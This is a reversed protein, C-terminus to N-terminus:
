PKQADSSGLTFPDKLKLSRLFLFSNFEGFKFFKSLDRKALALVGDAEVFSMFKKEFSRYKNSIDNENQIKKGIIQQNEDCRSLEVQM